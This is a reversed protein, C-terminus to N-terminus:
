LILKLNSTAEIFKDMDEFLKKPTVRAYVQTTKINSHGLMRSITEIPVGEELTILSAFSHRGSHYSIPQKIDAMIRLGRMNLQVVEASQIPFLTDRNEDKYKELLAIAEPLLKVRAQFDTKKRRYKLWLNDEEDTYLNDETIRVVDAYSTGTYCAFLFLDRTLLHSHRNAAIELDRIKEFSERSLAKPTSEKQKPLKYHAFHLKESYGEKFAIKCIKKLIALYHRVTDMSYGQELLVFDQYERIFLENLQGFAIDKTKFKKKIFKGLSRYTYVYGSLTTPAVDIGIRDRLEEMHRDLLALLTIQAGMSGQYLNKVAEADFPKKRAILSDFASHVGLLLKEIRQNVEVAERSKGDLRSERPNWLSPTCSLKLSFQAMSRGITIRGMIPAKGSKDLSSKKLYLLVKLKEQKM